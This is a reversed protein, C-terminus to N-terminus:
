ELVQECGVWGRGVCGGEAGPDALLLATHNGLAEIPSDGAVFAAAALPKYSTSLGDAYGERHRRQKIKQKLLADPGAVKPPEAM